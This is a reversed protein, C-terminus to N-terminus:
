CLMEIGHQDTEDFRSPDPSDVDLVGILRGGSELPVVIESRSAPDCAIHGDFEHVDAVRLTQGRAVSTGCVGSGVPIRVCAPKGQFPGLVLEGGRLVYVGLWNIRPLVDWLLAVFNATNALPDKEGALLAELQSNLMRYDVTTDQIM